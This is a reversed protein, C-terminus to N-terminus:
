EARLVAAPSANVSRRAPLWAVANAMVLGGVIVAAIWAMDLVPAQDLARGTTIAQWGIRGGIVGVAAGLVLPPGVLATALWLLSARAQRRSGGLARLVTLDRRAARAMLMLAHALSAAALLTIVLTLVLPAGAVRQLNRVDPPPVATAYSNRFSAKLAAATETRFAPDLRVYLSGAVNQAFTGRAGILSPHVLVSNKPDVAPFLSTLVVHGVLTLRRRSVGNATEISVEVPDGIRKHLADALPRGLAVESATSPLRGATVLPAIPQYGDVQDFALLPAFRGEVLADQEVFGAASTVHPVRRLRAIGDTTQQRSGFNGVQADWAFGYRAPHDVLAGLSGVLVTAAVAAAAAAACGISATHRQAGARRLSALGAFAAVSMSAAGPTRRPPTAQRPTPTRGGIAIMAAFALATGVSGLGLTLSDFRVGLHLEAQRAIGIPGIPSALLAALPCVACAIAAIPAARLWTIRRLDTAGLGLASLTGRMTLERRLQRALSQGGFVLAALASILAVARASNAQLHVSRGVADLGDREDTGIAFVQVPQKPFRQRLLAELDVSDDKPIIAFGIGYAAVDDDFADLVGPGVVLHGFDTFIGGNPSRPQLDYPSRLVGVIRMDRFGRSPAVAGEGAVDYEDSRYFGLRITDGVQAGRNALFSENATVEDVSGVAALRGDVLRARGGQTLLQGDVMLPPDFQAEVITRTPGPALATSVSAIAATDRMTASVEPWQSVIRQEAVPNYGQCGDFSEGPCFLPVRVGALGRLSSQRFAPFARDTRRAVGWATVPIAAALGLGVGLVLTARWHRRVLHAALYRHAGNM